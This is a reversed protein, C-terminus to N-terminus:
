LSSNRVEESDEELFEVGRKSDYDDSADNALKPGVGLVTDLLSQLGDM